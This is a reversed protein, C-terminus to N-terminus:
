ISCLIVKLHLYLIAFDGSVMYEMNSAGEQARYKNHIDLLERIQTQTLNVNTARRVRHNESVGEIKVIGNSKNMVQRNVGVANGYHSLYVLVVMCYLRLVEM